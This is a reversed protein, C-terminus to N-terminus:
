LKLLIKELIYQLKFMDCVCIKIYKYIFTHIYLIVDILYMHM